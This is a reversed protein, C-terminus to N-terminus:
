KAARQASQVSKVRAINKRVVGMLHHQNMQGTARQMRLNFQEKRLAVLEQQLEDASKGSLTKLYEASKM